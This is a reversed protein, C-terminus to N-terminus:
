PSGEQELAQPALTGGVNLEVLFGREWVRGTKIAGLRKSWTEGHEALLAKETKREVATLARRTKDVQLRIFEGRPDCREVLSAAYRRRADDDDPAALVAALLPDDVTIPAAIKAKPPPPARGLLALAEEKRETEAISGDARRVLYLWREGEECGGELTVVEKPAERFTAFNTPVMYGTFGRDRVEHAWLLDLAPRAYSEIIWTYDDRGIGSTGARKVVRWALVETTTIQLYVADPPALLCAGTERDFVGSHENGGVTIKGETSSPGQGVVRVEYARLPKGMGM